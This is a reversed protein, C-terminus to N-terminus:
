DNHTMAVLGHLPQSDKEPVGHLEVVRDIHGDNALTIVWCETGDLRRSHKSQGIDSSAIMGKGIPDSRKYLVHMVAVVVVIIIIIHVM